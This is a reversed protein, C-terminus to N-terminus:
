LGSTFHVIVKCDWNEGPGKILSIVWFLMLIIKICKLHGWFIILIMFDNNVKNMPSWRKKKQISKRVELGEKSETDACAFGMLPNAEKVPSEPPSNERGYKLNFHSPSRHHKKTFIAVGTYLCFQNFKQTIIFFNPM